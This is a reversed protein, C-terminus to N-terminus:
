KPYENDSMSSVDVRGEYRYRSREYESVRYKGKRM